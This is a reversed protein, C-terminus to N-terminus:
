ADMSNFLLLRRADVERHSTVRVKVRHLKEGKRRVYKVDYLNIIVQVDNNNGDSSMGSGKNTGGDM